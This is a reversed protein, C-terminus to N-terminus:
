WFYHFPFLMDIQSYRYLVNKSHFTYHDYVVKFLREVAKTSVFLSTSLKKLTPNTNNEPATLNVKARKSFCLLVSSDTVKVKENEVNEKKTFYTNEIIPLAVTASIFLYFLIALGSFTAIKLANKM